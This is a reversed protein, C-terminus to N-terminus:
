WGISKILKEPIYIHHIKAHNKDITIDCDNKMVTVQKNILVKEKEKSIKDFLHHHQGKEFFEEVSHFEMLLHLVQNQFLGDVGKVFDSRDGQLAKFDAMKSPPVPFFHHFNHITIRQIKKKKELLLDVHDSVLAGMDADGTFISIKDTPNQYVFSAILDDAEAGEAIQFAFNHIHLFHYIESKVAFIDEPKNKRHSKYTPLLEDRFNTGECDFVIFLSSPKYKNKLKAVSKLFMNRAIKRYHEEDTISYAEKIKKARYYSKYVLYTGDIVLM